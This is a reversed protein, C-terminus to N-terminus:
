EFELSFGVTLRFDDSQPTEGDSDPTPGEIRDWVFDLDFDLPGWIEISLESELHQSTKDFDTVVALLQYTTDWDVDRFPDTELTTRFILAADNGTDSEGPEVTDFDTRQYGAGGVVSWEVKKQDIVDYGVGSGLTGRLEINQIRDIYIEALPALLFTRQTVYIEFLGAIRQNNTIEDSDVVSYASQYALTATTIPSEREIEIGTTLDTQDSNGSRATLGLDIELSWYNIESRDGEIMSFLAERPFERIEAGTDVRIVGAHMAATGSVIDRDNFRYTNFHPSYFGAIDDWDIDLDDLEDSDFHVEEDLIYEIKGRILEGSNLMLWDKVKQGPAYRPPRWPQEVPAPPLLERETPPLAASEPGSAAGPEESRSPAPAVSLAFASTALVLLTRRFPRLAPEGEGV